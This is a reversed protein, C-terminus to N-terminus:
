SSQRAVNLRIRDLRESFAADRARETTRAIGHLITTHDRNGIKRGIQWLSLSTLERILFIAAHRARVLPVDRCQGTLQDPTVAFESAVSALITASPTM